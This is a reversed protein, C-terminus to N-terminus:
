NEHESLADNFHNLGEYFGRHVKWYTRLAFPRLSRELRSWIEELQRDISCESDDDHGGGMSPCMRLAVTKQLSSFVATVNISLISQIDNSSRKQDRQDSSGDSILPDPPPTTKIRVLRESISM